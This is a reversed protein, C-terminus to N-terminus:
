SAPAYRLLAKHIVDIKYLAEAVGILFVDPNCLIQLFAIDVVVLAEGFM